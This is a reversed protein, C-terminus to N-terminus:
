KGKYIVAMGDHKEDSARIVVSQCRPDNRVADLFDQVADAFQLVNDAVVVARAALKPEVARFYRLYDEKVADIFVFDWPGALKPIAQLADGKVLTIIKQM